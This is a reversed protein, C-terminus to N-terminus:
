ELLCQQWGFCPLALWIAVLSGCCSWELEVMGECWRQEGWGHSVRWTDSVRFEAEGGTAQPM